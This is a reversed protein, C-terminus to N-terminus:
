KDIKKIMDFHSSGTNIGYVTGDDDKLYLLDGTACPMYQVTGTIQTYDQDGFFVTVRDGEIIKETTIEKAM